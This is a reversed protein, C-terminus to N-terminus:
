FRAKSSISAAYRSRCAGSLPRAAAAGSVADRHHNRTQNENDRQALTSLTAPSSKVEALVSIDTRGSQLDRPCRRSTRGHFEPDMRDGYWFQSLTWVTELPVIEGRPLRNQQCHMGLDDESRLLTM